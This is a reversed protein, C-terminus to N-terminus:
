EITDRAALSAIQEYVWMQAEIAGMQETTESIVEMLHAPNMNMHSAFATDMLSDISTVGVYMGFDKCKERVREFYTPPQAAFTSQRGAVFLLSSAGARHAADAAREVDTATFPKDKLETGMYPKGAKFLDLDSFQRKSTGAQNVPHPLITYEEGEFMLHYIATTAIVLAAGGFSQDLLNSLFHQLSFVGMNNAVVGLAKRETDRKQKETLLGSVIYDVCERAEESTKVTPLNDCLLRLAHKPDGGAAPNDRSLRMFRGPKNVLPDNNSGDLINGLLTKQFEYVVKSALSRADYAGPSPDGAQLSLIDISPNVAKAVLATFMIYRYTLCNKGNMVFDITDKICCSDIPHATCARYSTNLLRTATPKDIDIAM